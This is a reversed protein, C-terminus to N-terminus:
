YDREVQPAHTVTTEPHLAVTQGDIFWYLVNEM